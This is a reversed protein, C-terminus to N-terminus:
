RSTVRNRYPFFEGLEKRVSPTSVSLAVVSERCDRSHRHVIGPSDMSLSYVCGSVRVFRYTKGSCM